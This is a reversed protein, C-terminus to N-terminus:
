DLSKNCLNQLIWHAVGDEENSLCVEKAANQIEVAANSVAVSYGSEKLIELDNYDDGFAIVDESTMNLRACLDLLGTRKSVRKNLIVFYNPDKSNDILKCDFQGFDIERVREPYQTMMSIKQIEKTNIMQYDTYEHIFNGVTLSKDNTLIRDPYTINLITEPIDLLMRIMSVVQKEDLNYESILENRYVTKAGNLSIIGDTGIAEMYNQSRMISRGTAVIVQIDERKKLERFTEMTFKSLTKDTRLLTLDLDIALLKM